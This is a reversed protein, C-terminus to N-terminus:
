CSASRVKSPAGCEEWHGGGRASKKARPSGGKSGVSQNHVAPPVPFSLAAGDGDETNQNRGKFLPTAISRAPPRNSAGVGGDAAVAPWAAMGGATNIRVPGNAAASGAWTGGLSSAAQSMGMAGYADESDPDPRSRPVLVPVRLRQRHLAASTDSTGVSGMSAVTAATVPRVAQPSFRTRRAATNGRVQASAPASGNPRWAAAVQEAPADRSHRWQQASARSALGSTGAKHEAHSRQTNDRNDDHDSHSEEPESDTDLHHTQVAGMTHQLGATNPPEIIGQIGRSFHLGRATTASLPRRRNEIRRTIEQELQQKQAAWQALARM